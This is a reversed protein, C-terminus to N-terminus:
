KEGDFWEGSFDNGVWGSFPTGRKAPVLWFGAVVM